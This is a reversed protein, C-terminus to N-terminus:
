IGKEISGFLLRRIREGLKVLRGRVTTAAARRSRHAKREHRLAANFVQVSQPNRKWVGIVTFNGRNSPAFNPIINIQEAGIRRLIQARARAVKLFDDRREIPSNLSVRITTVAAFHEAM